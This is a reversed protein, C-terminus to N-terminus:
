TYQKMTEVIKKYLHKWATISWGFDLHTFGRVPVKYTLVVNPLRRILHAIDHPTTLVDGDAWYIAVAATVKRLDYLPPSPQGYVRKNRKRGWDFKRFENSKTIQTFHLVNRVSTGAPDNGLYVPLRTKNM